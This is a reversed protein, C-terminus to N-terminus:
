SICSDGSFSPIEEGSTTVVDELEFDVIELKPNEFKKM